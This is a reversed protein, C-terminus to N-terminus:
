FAAQWGITGQLGVGLQPGRLSQYVPLGFEIALRHGAFLGEQKVYDIGLFVDVREGSRLDADATPIMNANLRSDVGTINGWKKGSMRFSTSVSRSMKRSIWAMLEYEHGLRYDRDNEGLRLASNFQMGWSLDDQHDAYTLGPHLDFTGSGLQMPYPLHQDAGMLTDDKRNISGTPFSLGVTLHIPLDVYPRIDYMGSLEIDGIGQAHSSFQRGDTRRRVEMDKILYPIMMMLTFQDNIGYMAGIMHMEMTMNLPSMMYQDFVEEVSVNKVGSYQQPMDMHMYKYTIMWDGSQHIHDGMVGIPALNALHDHQAPMDHQHMDHEAAYSINSLFLLCAVMGLSFIKM